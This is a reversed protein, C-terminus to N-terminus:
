PETARLCNVQLRLIGNPVWEIPRDPSLQQICGVLNVTFTAIIESLSTRQIPPHTLLHPEEVGSTVDLQSKLVCDAVKDYVFMYM